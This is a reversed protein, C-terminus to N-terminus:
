WLKINAMQLGGIVHVARKCGQVSFSLTVAARGASISSSSTRTRTGIGRDGSWGPHRCSTPEDILASARLLDVKVRALLLRSMFTCIYTALHYHNKNARHKESPAGSVCGGVQKWWWSVSAETSGSFGCALNLLFAIIDVPASDVVM